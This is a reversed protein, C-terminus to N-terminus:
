GRVFYRNHARTDRIEQLDRKQGPTLNTIKRIDKIFHAQDYYGCLYSIETLDSGPSENLLEIAKNIRAIQLMEKLTLGVEEKFNRELTRTSLNYKESLKHVRTMGNCREIDKTIMDVRHTSRTTNSANSKFREEFVQKMQGVEDFQYLREWIDEFNKIILPIDALAYNCFESAKVKFLYYFGMPKFVVAFGGGRDSASMRTFANHNYQHIGAIHIAPYKINYHGPSFLHIRTFNFYLEYNLIPVCKYIGSVDSEIYKYYKIFPKFLESPPAIQVKAKM